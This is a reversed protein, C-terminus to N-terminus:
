DSGAPEIFPVPLVAGLSSLSGVYDDFVCRAPAFPRLPQSRRVGRPNRPYLFGPDAYRGGGLIQARFLNWCLPM